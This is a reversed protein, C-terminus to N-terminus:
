AVRMEACVSVKQYAEQPPLHMKMHQDIYGDLYKQRVKSAIKAKPDLPIRPRKLAASVQVNIFLHFTFSALILQRSVSTSAENATRKKGM